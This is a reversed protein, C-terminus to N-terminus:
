QGKKEKEYLRKRLLNRKKSLKDLRAKIEDFSGEGNQLEWVIDHDLDDIVKKLQSSTM